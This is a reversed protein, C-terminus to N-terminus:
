WCEPLAGTGTSLRRGVSDMSLTGCLRDDAQGRQPTALLTYGNQRTVLSVLYVRQHDLAAMATGQADIAYPNEPLGLDVLSQAYRGHNLLFQEQRMTVKLLEAWALGRRVGIVQGQYAPLVASLLIAVISIVVVMEILTFGAFRRNVLM